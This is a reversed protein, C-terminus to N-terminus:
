APVAVNWHRLFQEALHAPGYPSSPYRIHILEIADMAEVEWRPYFCIQVCWADQRIRPIQLGWLRLIISM